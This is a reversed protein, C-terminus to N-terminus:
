ISFQLVTTKCMFSSKRQGPPHTVVTIDDHRQRQEQYRARPSRAKRSIKVTLSWGRQRVRSKAYVKEM